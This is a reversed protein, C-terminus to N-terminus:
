PRAGDAGRLIPSTGSTMQMATPVVEITPNEAGGRGFSSLLRGFFGQKGSDVVELGLGLSGALKRAEEIARQHDEGLVYDFLMRHDTRTVMPVGYLSYTTHHLHVMGSPVRRSKVLVRVRGDASM